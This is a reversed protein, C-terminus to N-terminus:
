IESLCHLITKHLYTWINCLVCALFFEENKIQFEFKVTDYACIICLTYFM